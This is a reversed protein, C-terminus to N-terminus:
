GATKPMECGSLIALQQITLYGTKKEIVTGNKELTWTPTVRIPVKNCRAVEANPGSPHCEVYKIYKSAPGLLKKQAVCAPCIYSGYEVLGAETLCQTFTNPVRPGTPATFFTYSIILMSIIIAWSASKIYKGLFKQKWSMTKVLAYVSIILGALIILHLITCLICVTKLVFEAYIMYLSFLFGLGFTIALHQYYKTNGYSKKSYYLTLFFFVVGLLAVPAGLIESYKSSNVKSCNFVGGLDCFSLSQPDSILSYHNYSLYISIIIGLISLFYLTKGARLIPTNRGAHENHESM